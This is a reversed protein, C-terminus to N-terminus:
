FMDPMWPPPGAFIAGAAALSAPTGTVRGCRVLEAPGLYGTFLTALARVHLRLAGDGGRRVRANGGEVEITWRGQNEPVVDDEVELQLTARVHPSYGRAEIAKPVDVIRLMWDIRDRTAFSDQEDLLHAIPDNPAAYYFVSPAMSRHAGLAGVLARLARPSRAVLDAVHLDYRLKPEPKHVFAVYGEPNEDVMAVYALTKVGMPRLIRRWMWECRTLNGTNEAAQEAYLRRFLPEDEPTAARIKAATADRVTISATAIERHVHSGGLEYGAKRYLPQTAPYLLSIPAGEAHLETMLSRMMFSASGTSRHEPAIAVGSIAAGAIARGGYWQGMPLRVLGGALAGQHFVLRMEGDELRELFGDVANPEIPPSPALAQMLVHSFREIEDRGNPARYAHSTM